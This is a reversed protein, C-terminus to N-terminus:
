RVHTHDNESVRFQVILPVTVGGRVGIDNPLDRTQGFTSIFALGGFSHWMVADVEPHTILRVVDASAQNCHRAFEAENTKNEIFCNVHFTCEFAKAPPNGPYDLQPLPRISQQQIVVPVSLALEETLVRGPRLITAPALRRQIELAIREIVPDNM